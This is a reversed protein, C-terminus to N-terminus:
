LKYAKMKNQQLRVFFDGQVKIERLPPFTESTLALFKICKM